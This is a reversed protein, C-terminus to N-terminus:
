AQMREAIKTFEVVDADIEANFREVEAITRKIWEDDREVRVIFLQLADIRVRPDYSVFDWWSRGSCLMCWQVQPYYKAPIKGAKITALHNATNLCKIEVGGDIGVLGDPSAGIYDVDDPVIFGVTDVNAGTRMEYAFRANPEQEIGWMMEKSVFGREAPLDTMREVVLEARYNRRAAAEGSKVTALVDAVRSATIRGARAALWEDTGQQVDIVRM